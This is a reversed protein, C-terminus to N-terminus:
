PRNEEAKRANRINNCIAIIIFEVARDKSLHGKESMINAVANVAVATEAILESITGDLRYHGKNVEIM